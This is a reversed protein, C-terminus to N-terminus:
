WGVLDTEPGSLPPRGDGPDYRYGGDAPKDARDPRERRSRANVTPM